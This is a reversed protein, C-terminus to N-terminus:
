RSVSASPVIRPPAIYTRFFPRLIGQSPAIKASSVDIAAKPMPLMTCALETAAASCVVKPTEGDVVPMTSTTSVPATIRPPMLRMPLTVSSSTGNM